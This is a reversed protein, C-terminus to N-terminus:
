KDFLQSVQVGAMVFPGLGKPDNNVVPETMYYNYSGDRGNGLGSVRNINTISISGDYGINVFENIMGQYANIAINKYEKGLYGKNVAKALMYVFMSSGSAELYNGISDPKNPVQYWVGSNAQFKILAPALEQILNILPERLDTRELPIFDLVDVLAMTYWGLGRSWFNASLGTKPNAWPQVKKEDWGHFYLGTQQDFLRKRAVLFENTAEEFGHSDNQLLANHALFPIGMYIGDLWLQWPYITKHWFAGESTRPHHKLQNVLRNIAIRYKEEGTREFLRLLMKGANIHDINYEKERYTKIEGKETIYSDITRKAYNSIETNGTILAVDDFSQMLLGTTYAWKVQKGKYMDFGGFSLNNDLRKIESKVLQTTFDLISKKNLPKPLNTATLTTKLKVRLPKSLKEVEQEVYEVFQEKTNIGDVEKGWTAGFYYDLKGDALNFVSVISNKDETLTKHPKRKFLLFMGLNEGEVSQPGWTAIYSWAHVSIDLSGTLLEAKPHKVISATLNRLKKQSSSLEVHVLRSGAQMTLKADLDTQLDAVKWNKYNLTLSSQLAGNSNVKVSREEVDAVGHIKKGDWYGYGGLGPSKGVKLIDMGWDAPQHYSQYGDLGINHLALNHQTKGFIDFGNRWDLYVRYGIKDSEIGPGEYRIFKSHDTYQPPTTLENVNIFEGGIYEKGQWNGATKIAVEAQSRKKLATNKTTSQSITLQKSEAAAFDAMLLIADNVGDSDQDILQSDIITSNHNVVLNKVSNESVGLENFSFVVTEDIRKFNSPNTLNVSALIKTESKISKAAANCGFLTLCYIIASVMKINSKM